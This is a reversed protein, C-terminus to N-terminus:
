NSTFINPVITFIVGDKLQCKCETAFVTQNAQPRACSGPVFFSNITETVPVVYRRKACNYCNGVCPQESM